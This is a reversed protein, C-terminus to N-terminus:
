RKVRGRFSLLALGVLIPGLFRLVVRFIEGARTLPRGPATSLVSAATAASFTVADVTTELLTRSSPKVKAHVVQGGTSVGAVRTQIGPSKFGFAEFLAAFALIVLALTALARSSRLAYGSVLWYLGILWREVPPTPRAMVGPGSDVAGSPPQRRMEMEGYYFDAAGPEDKIDERGKRLSRYLAALQEATPPDSAGTVWGPTDTAPDDWGWAERSHRWRHEEALTQRRSWRWPWHISYSSPSEAFRVRELQLSALGQAGNFSCRRLDVESLALQALKAERLSILAPAYGSSPSKDASCVWGGGEVPEERGLARDATGPPLATLLSPGGFEARELSVQSWRLSLDGGDRFRAAEWSARRAAAEIRVPAFFDAAQFWLTESVIMPGLDRAQEFAARLFSANACFFSGAFWSGGCFRAEGFWADAAFIVDDFWVDSGFRAGSFWADSHFTAGNFRADKEFSAEGFQALGHVEAGSFGAEGDFHAEGAFEANGDVVINDFRAEAAFHAGSFRADGAVEARELHLEREFRANAFRANSEFVARTFRVDGSFCVEAFEPDGAFLSGTFDVRSLVRAGDSARPASELLASIQDPQICVGTARVTEGNTVADRAHQLDESHWDPLQVIRLRAHRRALRLGADCSSAQRAKVGSSGGAHYDKGTGGLNDNLL